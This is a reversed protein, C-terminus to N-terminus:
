APVTLVARFASGPQEADELDRVTLQGRDAMDPLIQETM